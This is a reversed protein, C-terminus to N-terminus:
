ITHPSMIEKWSPNIRLDPTDPTLTASSRSLMFSTECM